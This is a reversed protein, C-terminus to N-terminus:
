SGARAQGLRQSGAGRRGALRVSFGPQRGRNGLSALRDFWGPDPRPSGAVLGSGSSGGLGRVLGGKRRHKEVQTWAWGPDIALCPRRQTFRLWLAVSLHWAVTLGAAVDGWSRVVHASWDFALATLTFPWFLLVVFAATPFWRIM